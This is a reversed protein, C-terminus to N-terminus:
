AMCDNIMDSMSNYWDGTPHKNNWMAIQWNNYEKAFDLVPRNKEKWMQKIKENLETLRTHNDEWICTCLVPQIWEEQMWESRQKIDSLTQTNNKTNAWFYFMFSKISSNNNKYNIVDQKSTFRRPHNQTNKWEVWDMNPFKTKNYYWQFGTMMSNWLWWLETNNKALLEPSWETLINNENQREPTTTWNWIKWLYDQAFEKYMDWVKKWNRIYNKDWNIIYRANFFDTKNNNIYNSLKKSDQRYPWWNKMWDILIFSALDDSELVTDPNKVLDLKDWTLINWNNDKFNLGSEKIIKTYKEYNWKHTLQLFWRGYYAKWTSTDDRWYSRNEWWIEKINKFWCEWKVIALIYAIHRNDTVWYLKAQKYIYQESVQHKEKNEAWSLNEYWSINTQNQNNWEWLNNNWNNQRTNNQTVNNQLQNLEMSLSDKLEQETSATKLSEYLLDLNEKWEDSILGIIGYVNLNKKLNYWINNRLNWGENFLISMVKDLWFITEEQSNNNENNNENEWESWLILKNFNFISWSKVENKLSNLEWQIEVLEKNLVNNKIFEKSINIKRQEVM